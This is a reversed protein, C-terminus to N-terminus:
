VVFYQRAQDLSHRVVIGLIAKANQPGFGAPMTVNHGHHTVGRGNAGALPDGGRAFPDIITGM